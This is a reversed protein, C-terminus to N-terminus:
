RVKDRAPKRKGPRSKKRPGPRIPGDGGPPVTFDDEEPQIDYQIFDPHFERQSSEYFHEFAKIEYEAVSLRDYSMRHNHFIKKTISPANHDRCYSLSEQIWTALLGVCGLTHNYIFDFDNLCDDMKIELAETVGLLFEAFKKKDNTTNQYRPFYIPSIRRALQENLNLLAKGEHTGFLFFKTDMTNAWNKLRNVHSKQDDYKVGDVFNQSEDVLIAIPRLVNIRDRLLRQLQGIDMKAQSLVRRGHLKNEVAQDFDAKYKINREGLLQLLDEIFARMPFKGGIPAPAEVYIPPGQDQRWGGQQRQVLYSHLYKLQKTKGVGSPGLIAVVQDSRGDQVYRLIKRQVQNFTHHNIILTHELNYIQQEINM